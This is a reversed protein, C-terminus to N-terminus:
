QRVLDVEGAPTHDDNTRLYHLGSATRRLEVTANACVTGTTDRRVERFLAVDKSAYSLTWATDWCSPDVYRVPLVVLAEAHYTTSLKVTFADPMSDNPKSRWTGDFGLPLVPPCPSTTLAPALDRGDNPGPKGSTVGLLGKDGWAGRYGYWPQEHANRVPSTSWRFGAGTEDDGLQKDDYRGYNGPRAYSGHAGKASYVVPHGDGTLELTAWDIACPPIEHKWFTVATPKGDTVQVAVREWDSEHNSTYDDNAYFFWYLYAGRRGDGGDVYQWYVPARVTKDPGPKNGHLADDDIDLYFGTGSDVPENSRFVKADSPHVCRSIGRTPKGDPHQYEGRGLKGEDPNTAVPGPDQCNKHHFWLKSHQAVYTTSTPFDAEDKHLWVQPALREATDQNGAGRAPLTTSPLQPPTSVMRVDPALVTRHGADDVLALSPQPPLEEELHLGSGLDRVTALPREGDQSWHSGDFKWPTHPVKDTCKVDTYDGECTWTWATARLSGDAAWWPQDLGSNWDDEAVEPSKARLGEDGAEVQDGSSDPDFWRVAATGSMAGTSGTVAYAFMPGGRWSRPTYTGGFPTIASGVVRRSGTAPDFVVVDSQDRAGTATVVFAVLRDGAGDIGEVSDVTAGFRVVGTQNLTVPDRVSFDQTGPAPVFLRGAAIAVDACACGTTAVAGTRADISILGKGTAAVFRRGDPTWEANLGSDPPLPVHALETAGRMVRLLTPTAYAFVPDPATKEPQPPPPMVTTKCSGAAAVVLVACVLVRWVRGVQTVTRVM